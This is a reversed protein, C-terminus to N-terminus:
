WVFAEGYDTFRDNRCEPGLRPNRSPSRTKTSVHCRPSRKQSSQDRKTKATRRRPERGVNWRALRQGVSACPTVTGFTNGFGGQRRRKGSLGIFEDL